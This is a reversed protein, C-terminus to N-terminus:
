REPEKRGARYAYRGPEYDDYKYYYRDVVTFRIDNLVVGLVVGGSLSEMARFILQKTTMGVRVVVLVGDSVTQLLAADTFPVTPPADIVIRDFEERLDRLLGSFRESQLLELPTETPSGAPLVWLKTDAMEVLAHEVPAQDTLVETLGLTPKPQIYRAVSPRRLDADILLVRKERDETYALALNTATTTKGEGPVPSTVVTVQRPKPDDVIGQDLRLRLRRYREAIPSGPRQLIVLHPNETFKRPIITGLPVGAVLPSKKDSSAKSIEHPRSAAPSGDKGRPEGGKGPFLHFNKM